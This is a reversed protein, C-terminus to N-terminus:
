IYEGFFSLDLFSYSSSYKNDGIYYFKGNYVYRGYRM